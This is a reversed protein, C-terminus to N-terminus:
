TVHLNALRVRVGPVQISILYTTLLLDTGLNADVVDVVVQAFLIKQYTKM